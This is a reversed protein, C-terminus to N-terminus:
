KLFMLSSAILFQAGYYTLYNTALDVPREKGTGFYTGNLIMDSIAFLVGGICFLNLSVVSGRYLLAFSGSLFVTSFLLFGYAGLMPKLDGFDLKMAKELVLNGASGIAALLLPVIIYWPKGGPYFRLLLGIVYLIHGVGFVGIGARTFLADQQPFVYKLDLWVDGLLGFLLGLLVFVGIPHPAGGSASYYWGYAAVAIFLASVVSKILVAKVSYAKIKERIYVALLVAGAALLICYVLM